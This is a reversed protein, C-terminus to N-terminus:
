RASRRVSRGVRRRSGRRRGRGVPIGDLSTTFYFESIDDQAFIPSRQFRLGMATSSGARLKGFPDRGRIRVWVQAAGRVPVCVADEAGAGSFAQDHHAWWSIGGCAGVGGRRGCRQGSPGDIANGGGALVAVRVMRRSCGLRSPLVCFRHVVDLVRARPYLLFYAGLVGAIAGSAGVTPITSHPYIAVQTGMAILGPYCTFCWINSTDWTTKLTTALFTFSGCTAWCMCGAATCSCRRLSPFCWRGWHIAILVTLFPRWIRRFRPMRGCSNSGSWEPGTGSAAM